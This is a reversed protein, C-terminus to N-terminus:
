GVEAKACFELMDDSPSLKMLIATEILEQFAKMLGFEGLLAAEVHEYNSAVETATGCDTFKQFYFQFARGFLYKDLAAAKEADDTDDEAVDELLFLFCKDDPDGSGDIVM